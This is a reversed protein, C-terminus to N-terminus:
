ENLLKELIEKGGKSEPNLEVSRKYMEIAEKKSGTALLAEGYSDYVNWSNPFLEVNLKFAELAEAPKPNDPFQYPNPKNPGGLLDYGLLNIEDESLYYRATDKKLKLLTAKAKAAGDKVLMKGYINAISARPQKIKKGNIIDLLQFATQQSNNNHINDFLIIVQDKTINRLLICSHGTANGNHFVVKGYSSDTALQWGLGFYSRSPQGNNLRVPQFMQQQTAASLLKNASYAKAYKYLDFVTGIYQGFGSFDFASWYSVIFPVNAAKILSDSYLQPQLYPYAYNDSIKQTLQKKMSVPQLATIGAPKLINKQIYGTHSTGTIKEVLLALVIYNVNDYNSNDGPNYVLPIKKESVVPLFDANTFVAATDKKRLGNFYANYAPLGSTHSLLHSIHIDPYPFSPLYKTVPDNVSLKGQQALQMIATAVLTKSISALPFRTSFTIPQKTSFDTYGFSNEYIIKGKEAVLVAGNFQGAATLARFYQTILQHKSQAPAVHYSLSLVFVVPLLRKM